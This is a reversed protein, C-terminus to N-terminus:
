IASFWRTLSADLADVSESVFLTNQYDTPDFPTRAVVDVDFPHVKAEREFRGLEGFSSLLGAGVVQYKDSSPASRVLGFELTYWYLRILKEVTDDNARKTAEGFLRNLRAFRPDALMPVHGIFEHIIDPEPTYLPESEHRIYQTALFVGDALKEMFVRPSVLGAVPELRFGSRPTLMENIEQFSPIHNDRLGSKPWERLYTECAYKQHLPLLHDHAVRWVGREVDSYPVEPIADGSVYHLAIAALENRRARYRPDRFGPHNRDLEVLPIDSVTAEVNSKRASWRWGSSGAGKRLTM